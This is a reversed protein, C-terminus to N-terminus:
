RAWNVVTLGTIKKFHKEKDTVLVLGHNMATAAIMLDMDDIPNGRKQLGAKLDGFTDTDILFGM